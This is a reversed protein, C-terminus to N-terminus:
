EARQAGQPQCASGRTRGPEDPPGGPECRGGARRLIPPYKGGYEGTRMTGRTVGIQVEAGDELGTHLKSLQLAALVARHVDDEHSVCAGFSIYLYSGKDGVTIELLNGGSPLLLNQVARIYENLRNEALPDSDYDIGGFRLFIAVTPRLETLFEGMGAQLREVVAPHVWPRVQAETLQGPQLEQWSTPPVPTKLEKLVAFRRGPGTQNEERRWEDIVLADGLREVAFEDLLVEGRRAHHEGEAMRYLTEGALVDYLLIAPDGVLFRRAPGCAVAVKVALAVPERGPVPVAAFTQMGAQMAVACTVAKLVAQTVAEAAAMGEMSTGREPSLSGDFWCTIADGAFGIVSGGFRDVEGILADYITNLYLPLEEAGRRLGLAETLAETLPTFGSIDAFLAAGEVNGPLDKGHAM